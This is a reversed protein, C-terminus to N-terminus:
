QVGAADTPMTVEQIDVWAGQIARRTMQVGAWQDGMQEFRLDIFVALGPHPFTIGHCSIHSIPGKKWTIRFTRYPAMPPPPVSIAAPAETPAEVPKDAKKRTL